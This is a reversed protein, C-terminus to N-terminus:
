ALSTHSLQQNNRWRGGGVVVRAGVKCCDFVSLRAEWQDHRITSNAMMYVVSCRLVITIFPVIRPILM